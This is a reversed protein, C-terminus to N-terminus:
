EQLPRILDGAVVHRCRHVRDADITSQQNRQETHIAVIGAIGQLNQVHHPLRLERGLYDMVVDLDTM